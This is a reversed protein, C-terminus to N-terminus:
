KVYLKETDKDIYGNLDYHEIKNNNTMLNAFHVRIYEDWIGLAMQKFGWLGQAEQVRTINKDITELSTIANLTLYEILRDSFAYTQKDNIKLLSLRNNLLLHNREEASFDQFLDWDFYKKCDEHQTYDGELVVISTTETAPMQILLYLNRENNVLLESTSNTIDLDVSYKFPHKFKCSNRLEISKNLKSTLDIPSKNKDFVTVLRGNRMMVPALFVECDTDLAVTYTQNFKIPIQAIKYENNTYTKFKYSPTSLEKEYSYDESSDYEYWYGDIYKNTPYAKPNKSELSEAGQKDKYVGILYTKQLIAVFKDKLQAIQIQTTSTGKVVDSVWDDSSSQIQIYCGDLSEPPDVSPNLLKLKADSTIYLESSFLVQFQSSPIVITVKDRPRIGQQQPYMPYKNWKHMCTYEYWYGNDWDSNPYKLRSTASINEYTDPLVNPCKMTYADTLTYSGDDNLVLTTEDVCLYACSSAGGVTFQVYTGSLIFPEDIVTKISTQFGGLTTKVCKTDSGYIVSTEIESGGFTKTTKSGVMVPMRYKDWEYVTYYESQQTESINLNSVYRGSFCNYFPMLDVGYLNRIARLYTGLTEHTETDYYGYQSIHRETFQTDFEGFKYYKVNKFQAEPIVVPELKVYWYDGIKDDDPYEDEIDSYVTSYYDGKTDIIDNEYVEMDRSTSDYNLIATCYKVVETSNDFIVYAGDLYEKIKNVTATSTLILRDKNDDLVVKGNLYKVGSSFWIESDINFYEHQKATTVVEAKLNYLDWYTSSDQVPDLIGSETCKIIYDNYIYLQDEFIYDWQRVIKYSPLPTNYLLNKIFKSEITRTYFQQFM